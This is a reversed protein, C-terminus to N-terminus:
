TVDDCSTMPNRAAPSTVDRNTQCLEAVMRRGVYSQETQVTPHVMTVRSPCGPANGALCIPHCRSQTTQQTADASRQNTLVPQQFGYNSPYVYAIYFVRVMRLSRIKSFSIRIMRVRSRHQVCQMINVQPHEFRVKIPTENLKLWSKAQSQAILEDM